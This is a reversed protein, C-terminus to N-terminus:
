VRRRWGAKRCDRSFRVGWWRTDFIWVVVVKRRLAKVVLWDRGDLVGVFMAAIGAVGLRKPAEKEPGEAPNLVSAGEM